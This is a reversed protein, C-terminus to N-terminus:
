DPCVVTSAVQWGTIKGDPDTTVQLSNQVSCQGTLLGLGENLLAVGYKVINGLTTEAITKTGGDGQTIVTLSLNDAGEVIIGISWSSLQVMRYKQGGPTELGKSDDTM